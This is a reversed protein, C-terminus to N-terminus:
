EDKYRWIYGYACIIKGNCCDSIYSHKFGLQREVEHTSPFERIVTGDLYCQFVAKSLKGNTMAEAVRENRSGYNINFSCDCYEINEVRNDTKVENIHNVQLNSEDKLGNPIAIFEQAVLRHIKKWYRVGEKFLCVSVYGYIDKRPKLIKGSTTNRPLSRVRGLNSVQYLGEFDKIDKWVEKM